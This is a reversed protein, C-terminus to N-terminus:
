VFLKKPNMQLDIGIKAYRELTNIKEFSPLEDNNTYFSIQMIDTIPIRPINILMEKKDRLIKFKLEHNEKEMFMCTIWTDIYIHKNFKDFYMHVNIPTNEIELIIDDKILCNSYQDWDQKVYFNNEKNISLGYYLNSYLYDQGNILQKLTYTNIIISKNDFNHVVIGSVKNNCHVVSGIEVMGDIEHALISPLIKHWFNINVDTIKDIRIHNIIHNKKPINNTLESAPNIGMSKITWIRILFPYSLRSENMEIVHDNYVCIANQSHTFHNKNIKFPTFIISQNNYSMILGSQSGAVSGDSNLYDVRINGEIM